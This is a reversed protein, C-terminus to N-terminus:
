DDWNVKSLRKGIILGNEDLVLGIVYYDGWWRPSMFKDAKEKPAELIGSQCIKNAHNGASTTGGLPRITRHTGPPLGIIQIAEEMKMGLKIRYYSYPSIAGFPWYHYALFVAMCLAPLGFLFYKLRKRM